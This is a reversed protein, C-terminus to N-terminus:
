RKVSTIQLTESLLKLITVKSLIVIKSTKLALGAVYIETLKNFVQFCIGSLKISFVLTFKKVNQKFKISTFYIM